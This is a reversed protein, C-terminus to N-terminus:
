DRPSLIVTDDRAVITTREDGDAALPEGTADIVAAICSGQSVSRVRLNTLFTGARLVLLRDDARIGKDSGIDVQIQTPSAVTVKGIAPKPGLGYQSFWLGALGVLSVALVVVGTALLLSYSDSGIAALGLSSRQPQQAPTELQQGSDNM